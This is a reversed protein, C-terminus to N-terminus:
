RNDIASNTRRLKKTYDGKDEVRIPPAECGFPENPIEDVGQRNAKIHGNKSRKLGKNRNLGKNVFKRIIGLM